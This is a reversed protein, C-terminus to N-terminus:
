PHKCKCTWSFNRLLGLGEFLSPDSIIPQLQYINNTSLELEMLKKRLPVVLHIIQVLTSLYCTNGLSGIGIPKQM